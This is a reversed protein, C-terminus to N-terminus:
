IHDERYSYCIFIWCFNTDRIGSKDQFIMCPDQARIGLLVKSTHVKGSYSAYYALKEVDLVSLRTGLIRAQVLM